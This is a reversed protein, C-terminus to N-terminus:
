REWNVVDDETDPIRDPGASYLDYGSATKHTTPYKYIYPTGWPDVPVSEMLRVWATPKPDGSPRTVLADLGQSTSPPRGRNNSSYTLLATGISSIDAQARTIKASDLMPLLKFAAAGLLLVIIAVVLMIELLTFGAQSSPSRRKM